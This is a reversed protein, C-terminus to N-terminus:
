KGNESVVEQAFALLDKQEVGVLANYEGDKLLIFHTYSFGLDQELFQLSVSSLSLERKNKCEKCPLFVVKEIIEVDSKQWIEGLHQKVTLTNRPGFCSDCFVKRSSLREKAQAIMETLRSRSQQNVNPEVKAEINENSM